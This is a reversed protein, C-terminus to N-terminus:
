RGELCIKKLTSTLWNLASVCTVVKKMRLDFVLISEELGLLLRDHPPDEIPEIGM